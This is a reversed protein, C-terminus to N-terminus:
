AWCVASLFRGAGDGPNRWTPGCGECYPSIAPGDGGERRGGDQGGDAGSEGVDGAVRCLSGDGTEETAACVFRRPGASHNPVVNLGPIRM